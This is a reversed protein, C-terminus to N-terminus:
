PQDRVQEVLHRALGLGAAAPGDPGLHAASTYAGDVLVALQSGLFEGDGSDRERSRGHARGRTLQTALLRFTHHLQERYVRAEVRAPHDPDDFEISANNFPCGRFGPRRLDAEIADLIALLAGGPDGEHDTIEVEIAANITAALRRLYAAVLADKAPYLRYVTAKGLGTAQVLEDMGVEHVGRAYFLRAATDLVRTEREQRSLRPARSTAPVETM